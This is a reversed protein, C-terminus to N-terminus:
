ESNEEEFDKIGIIILYEYVNNMAVNKIGLLNLDIISFEKNVLHKFKKLIEVHIVKQINEIKNEPIYVKTSFWEDFNKYKIM